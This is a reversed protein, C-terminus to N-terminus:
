ACVVEVGFFVFFNTIKINLSKLIYDCTTCM